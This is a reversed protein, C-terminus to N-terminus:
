FELVAASVCTVASGECFDCLDTCIRQTDGFKMKNRPDLHEQLINAAKGGVLMKSLVSCMFQQQLEFLEIKDPDNLNPAHSKMWFKSVSTSM